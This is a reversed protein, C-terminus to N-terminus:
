FPIDEKDDVFYSLPIGDSNFNTSQWVEWDRRGDFYQRGYFFNQPYPKSNSFRWQELATKNFFYVKNIHRAPIRNFVLIEAQPHTPYNDPISLDQHRINYFDGFMGKLAEPKKRDELPISSVTKHAANQQCFVCELEELVKANLLLVVWQPDNAENTMKKEERILYFMKYNPFSISLCIAEPHKDARDPDNWKFDQGREELISRGLLGEQLISRLNEIRTFHILTTIGREVCIQRLQEPERM